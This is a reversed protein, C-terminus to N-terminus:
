CKTRENKEDPARQARTVDVGSSVSKDHRGRGGVGRCVLLVAWGAAQAQWSMEREDRVRSLGRRSSHKSKSM